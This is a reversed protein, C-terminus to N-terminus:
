PLTVCYVTVSIGINFTPTRSHASLHWGTGSPYFSSIVVTNWFSGANVSYSGAIPVKGAPCTATISSAGGAPVTGSASM